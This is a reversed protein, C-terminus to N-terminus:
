DGGDDRCIDDTAKRLMWCALPIIVVLSLWMMGIMAGLTM